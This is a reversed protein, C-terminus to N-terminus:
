KNADKIKKGLDSLEKIVKTLQDINEQNSFNNIKLANEASKKANTLSTQLEKFKGKDSINEAKNLEDIKQLKDQQVPQKNNNNIKDENKNNVNENKPKEIEESCKEIKNNLDKVLINLDDILKNAKTTYTEIDLKEKEEELIKNLDLNEEIMEFKKFSATIARNLLSAIPIFISTAILAVPFLIVTDNLLKSTETVIRMAASITFALSFAISKLSVKIIDKIKNLSVTEDLLASIETKLEDKAKDFIKQTVAHRADMQTSVSNFLDNIGSDANLADKPVCSIKEWVQSFKEVIKDRIPVIIADM